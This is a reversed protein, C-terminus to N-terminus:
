IYTLKSSIKLFWQNTFIVTEEQNPSHVTYQLKTCQLRIDQWKQLDDIVYFQRKEGCSKSNYLDSWVDRGSGHHKNYIIAWLLSFYKKFGPMSRNPVFDVCICIRSPNSSIETLSASKSNNFSFVDSVAHDIGKRLCVDIWGEYLANGALGAENNAFYLYGTGNKKLQVFCTKQLTKRLWSSKDEVFVGGRGGYYKANNERFIINSLTANVINIFSNDNLCMAGGNDASNGFFTTTSNKSFYLTSGYAGIAGVERGRNNSFMVNGLFFIETTDCYLVSNYLYQQVAHQITILYLM